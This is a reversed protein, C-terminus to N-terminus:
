AEKRQQRVIKRSLKDVERNYNILETTKQHARVKIFEINLKETFQILKKVLDNNQIPKGSNTTFKKSVLKDTRRPIEAVYQSDTYVIVSFPNTFENMVYKIANIVAILEM